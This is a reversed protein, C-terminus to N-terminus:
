EFVRLVWSAKVGLFQEMISEGRAVSGMMSEGRSVTRNLWPGLITIDYRKM